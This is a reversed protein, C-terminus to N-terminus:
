YCDYHEWEKEIEERNIQSRPTTDTHKGSAGSRRLEQVSRLKDTSQKTLSKDSWKKNKGM